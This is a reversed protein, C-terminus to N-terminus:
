LNQFFYFYRATIIKQAAATTEIVFYPKIASAPINTTHTAVLSSNIYYRIDDISDQATTRRIIKFEVISTSAAVLTDTETTTSTLVSKAKWNASVGADYHFFIGSSDTNDGDSYATGFGIKVREATTQSLDTRFLSTFKYDPHIGEDSVGSFTIYAVNNTVSSTRFGRGSEGNTLSPSTFADTVCRWALEGVNSFTGGEEHGHMFTDRLIRIRYDESLRYAVAAIGDKILCEDITVGVGSTEENITDTTVSTTITSTATIGAHTGDSNHETQLYTKVDAKTGAPDTGLETQVAVVAAGLDNPVEARAKTKSGSPSNVELTTNTDLASPYSSGSGSGLESM